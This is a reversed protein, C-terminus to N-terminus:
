LMIMKLMLMVICVRTTIGGRISDDNVENDYVNPVDTM